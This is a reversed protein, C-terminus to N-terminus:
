YFDGHFTTFAAISGNSKPTLGINRFATRIAAIAASAAM